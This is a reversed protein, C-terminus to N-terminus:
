IRPRLERWAALPDAAKADAGAASADITLFALDFSEDALRALAEATSETEIISGEGDLARAIRQREAADPLGVVRTGQSGGHSLAVEVDVPYAELGDLGAALVRANSDQKVEGGGARPRIGLDLLM